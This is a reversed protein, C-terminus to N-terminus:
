AGDRDERITVGPDSWAVVAEAHSIEGSMFRTHLKRAGGCAGCNILGTNNPHLRCGQPPPLLPDSMWAPSERFEGFQGGEGKGEATTPGSDVRFGGPTAGSDGWAASQAAVPGPDPHPYRSEDRGDMSVFEAMVAPNMQFYIRRGAAVYLLLWHQKELAEVWSDIVKTTVDKDFEYFTERLTMASMVERGRQDVYSLLSWLFLRLDRSLSLFREDRNLAELKFSRKPTFPMILLPKRSYLSLLVWRTLHLGSVNPLGM